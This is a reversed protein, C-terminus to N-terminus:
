NSADRLSPDKQLAKEVRERVHDRMKFDEPALHPHIYFCDCTKHWGRCARCRDKDKAKDADNGHDHDHHNNKRHQKAERGDKAKGNDDDDTRRKKRDRPDTNGFAPFAGKTINGNAPKGPQLTNLSERKARTSAEKYTLSGLEAKERIDSTAIPVLPQLVVILDGAWPGKSGYEPLQYAVAEGMLNEWAALWTALQEQSTNKQQRGQFSKLHAKIRQRISNEVEATSRAITQLNAYFKRIDFDLPRHANQLEMSVNNSLLEAIRQLAKTQAAWREKAGKQMTTIHATFRDEHTRFYANVEKKLATVRQKRAAALRVQAAAEPTDTPATTTSSTEELTEIDIELPTDDVQTPPLTAVIDIHDRFVHHTPTTFPILQSAKELYHQKVHDVVEYPDVEQPEQLRPMVGDLYDLVNYAQALTRFQGNWTIWNEPGTLLILSKNSTSAVNNSSM